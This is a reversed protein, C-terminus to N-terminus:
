RYLEIRTPFDSPLTIADSRGFLRAELARARAPLDEPPAAPPPAQCDVELEPLAWALAVAHPTSPRDLDLSCAQYLASAWTKPSAMSALYASLEGRTVPGMGVEDCTACPLPARPDGTRRHDEAHRAEHLTIARAVHAVLHEAARQIDEDERLAESASVIVEVEGDTIAPCDSHLDRRAYSRLLEIERAPMGDWPLDTISFTSGCAARARIDRLTRELRQRTDAHRRLTALAEPDLHATIERRVAPGLAAQRPTPADLQPALLPWVQSLSFDYLRDALIIAGDQRASTHGLMSEVVNTHDARAMVRARHDHGGVDVRVDALRKYTKIYFLVRNPSAMINADVWWPQGARDMARNWSDVTALIEDRRERLEAEDRAQERLTEFLAQADPDGELAAHLEDFRQPAEPRQNSQAITWAPLLEAHVRELTGMQALRAQASWELRARRVRQTLAQGLILWGIGLVAVAAVLLGAIAKIRGARAHQAIFADAEQALADEDITPPEEAPM